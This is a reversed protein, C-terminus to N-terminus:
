LHRRLDSTLAFRKFLEMDSMEYIHSQYDPDYTCSSYGQPIEHFYGLNGDKTKFVIFKEDANWTNDNDIVINHLIEVEENGDFERPESTYLDKHFYYVNNYHIDKWKTKM